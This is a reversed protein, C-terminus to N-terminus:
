ATWSVKMGGKDECKDHVMLKITETAQTKGLYQSSYTLDYTTEGLSEVDTEVIWRPVNWVKWKDFVVSLGEAKAIEPDAAENVYSTPFPVSGDNCYANDFEFATQEIEM